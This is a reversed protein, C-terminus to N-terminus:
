LRRQKGSETEAEPLADDLRVSEFFARREQALAEWEELLEPADQRFRDVATRRCIDPIADTACADFLIRMMETLTDDRQGSHYVRADVL